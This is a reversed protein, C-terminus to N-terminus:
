KRRIEICPCLVSLQSDNLMQILNKVAELSYVTFSLGTTCNWGPSAPAAMLLEMLNRPMKFTGELAVQWKDRSSYRRFIIRGFGPTELIGVTSFTVGSDLCLDLYPLEQASVGLEALEKKILEEVGVVGSRTYVAKMDGLQTVM